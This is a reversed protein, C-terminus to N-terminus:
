VQLTRMAHQAIEAVECGALERDRLLAQAVAEVAAWVEPKALSAAVERWLNPVIASQGGPIQGALDIARWILPDANTRPNSLDFDASTQGFSYHQMAAPGAILGRIVSLAALWEDRSASRDPSPLAPERVDIWSTADGESNISVREIELGELWAIVAHGAEYFAKREDDPNCDIHMVDMFNGFLCKNPSLRPLVIRPTVVAVVDIWEEVERGTLAVCLLEM